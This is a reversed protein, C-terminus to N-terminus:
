TDAAPFRACRTGITVLKLLRWNSVRGLVETQIDFGVQASLAGTGRSGHKLRTCGLPVDDNSDFPKRQWIVKTGFEIRRRACDVSATLPELAEIDCVDKQSVSKAPCKM